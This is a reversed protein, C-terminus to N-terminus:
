PGILTLNRRSVFADFYVTRSVGSLTTGTPNSGTVPAPGVQPGMRVTGVRYSSSSTNLGTIPHATDNVYLTFTASTSGGQFSVEIVNASSPDIAFWAGTTVGGLRSVVARVQAVNGSSSNRRYQVRFVTRNSGNLAVFIDHQQGTGTTAANPNFYFRAQYNPDSTSPTNDQVYRSTGGSIAVQMGKAGVMAGVTTVTVGSGTVGGNWASLNGTEFGDAFILDAPTVNLLVVRTPGWNGAVDLARISINHTGLSFGTLSVTASLNAVTTTGFTGTMPTGLGVGPDADDFWEAAVITSAPAPAPTGGTVPDTASASLTVSAAGGTPNPAVGASTVNPGTKDIDMTTSAVPGWNGAADRAHVWLTHRGQSLAQIGFLPVAQYAAENPSSYGGDTALLVIGSGNAGVTDIFAEVAAINSNIGASVPDAATAAFKHQYINQGMLLGITGNTPNPLSVVSSTSPATKDVNLTVTACPGWNGLADHAHVGIVHAGEALAAVTAAPITAIFHAQTALAPLAPTNQTMATGTGGGTVPCTAAPGIFYEATDVNSDGRALDSGSLGLAVDATGNTPTPNLTLSSSTPGLKDLNLVASGFGGWGNV